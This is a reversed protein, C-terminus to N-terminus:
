PSPSEKFFFSCPRSSRRRAASSKRTQSRLSTPLGGILLTAPSRSKFLAHITHPRSQLLHDRTSQSGCVPVAAHNSSIAFRPAVVHASTGPQAQSRAVGSRAHPHMPALSKPTPRTSPITLFTKPTSFLFSHVLPQVPHMRLSKLV